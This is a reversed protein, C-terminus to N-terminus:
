FWHVKFFLQAIAGQQSYVTHMHADWFGCIVRRVTLSIKNSKFGNLTIGTVNRGGRSFVQKHQLYSHRTATTTQSTQISTRSTTWSSYSRCSVVGVRTVWVRRYVCVCLLITYIVESTNPKHFQQFHGQPVM